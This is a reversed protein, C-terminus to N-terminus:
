QFMNWEQVLIMGSSPLISIQQNEMWLFSKEATQISNTLVGWKGAPLKFDQARDRNGNLFVLYKKDNEEISFNIFLSDTQPFFTYQDPKARSFLSHSKRIAILGRYYDILEQNLAAHEYNLWNTENDKNYSNHDILGIHEEPVPTHAIVKSRAYEQGEHIMLPGQSIFLFLAGLKNVKMQMSSLKANAELDTIQHGEKAEGLGIRIFDGMTHDDHSELYNVSHTSSLYQGGNKRLSGTIYRQLSQQDNEGQWQGFIYGLGDKPNQGKIGNRIQDNWSAWHHDSFGDPDYRGGWPEAILIVNPNVKRAAQRIEDITQWDIMAALDFRFGDIHYAQMWHIVSDKILRRAMLRETKLDNGCGSVSTFSCDDELRFYYFKDIYKLPNYDYQSVHNYVVDMLVAIGNAHFAKVMERFENVQSGSAGCYNGAELNSGSSYYSEPAFFYSTMYGWHNREYPNWTNFDPATHDMYPIEINGYDQCPLLEVANVGLSKIYPLGGRQQNELLGLYNGRKEEPLGSSPHATLDRLHMEYIILDSQPVSTWTDGEWDYSNEPTILTKAPHTFHNGTLTVPSYPDAVVITSDFMEGETQPGWIRYGYYKGTHGVDLDFEWVGQDDRKMTFSQGKQDSYDDFLEIKVWIARPAFIRFILKEGSKQYGLPKDSYLSDLIGDPLLFVRLGDPFRLYYHQNLLMPQDTYIKMLTDQIETKVPLIGPEIRLQNIIDSTMIGSYAIEILEPGQIKAQKIKYSNNPYGPNILLIFLMFYFKHIMM